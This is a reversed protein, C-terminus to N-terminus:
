GRWDEGELAEAEAKQRAAKADGEFSAHVCSPARLRDFVAFFSVSLVMGSSSVLPLGSQSRGRALAASSASATAFVVLLIRIMLEPDVSPRRIASYHPELTGHLNALTAAVLVNMRRLLHDKPVRDQAPVRVVVQGSREAQSGDTGAKQRQLDREGSKEVGKKTLM